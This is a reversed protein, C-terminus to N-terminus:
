ANATFGPNILSMDFSVKGNNLKVTKKSKRSVPIKTKICFNILATVMADEDIETGIQEGTQMQVNVFAKLPDEETIEFGVVFGKPIASENLQAYVNLIAQFESQELIMRRVEIAM